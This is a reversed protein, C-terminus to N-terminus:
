GRTDEVVPANGMDEEEDLNPYPYSITISQIRVDLRALLPEGSPVERDGSVPEIDLGAPADIAPQFSVSLLCGGPIDALKGTQFSAYGGYDWWFGTMSFPAGNLEEVQSVSMGKSLGFATDPPSLEVYSLEALAEEDWWGFVLKRDPDDPYVTTAIITIGEPGDIEGTVVNEAGFTQNLREISTDVALAGDCTIDAALAPPALLLLPLFAARRLM